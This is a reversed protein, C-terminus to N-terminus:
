ITHVVSYIPLGGPVLDVEGVNEIEIERGDTGAAPDIGLGAHTRYLPISPGIIYYVRTM